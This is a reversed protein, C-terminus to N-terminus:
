VYKWKMLYIIKTTTIAFIVQLDLFKLVLTKATEVAKSSINELEEDDKVLQSFIDSQPLQNCLPLVKQMLTRMQM